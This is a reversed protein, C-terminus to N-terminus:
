LALKVLEMKSHIGLKRYIEKRMSTVTSEALFLRDAIQRAPLGERILLAIDRERPTLAPTTGAPVSHLAAVGTARRHCLAMCEKLRGAYAGYDSNLSELLPLLAAGHEAFPLYMRDPLAITLAARLCAAAEKRRGEEQKAQALFILHYMQLLSYHMTRTTRLATETLAYLEARRKELLLMQCHLMVAHPQTVSYLTRRISEVHRLWEPLANTRGVAMDLHALCMEGLRTLATQRAAEIQQAIHGRAKTYAEADGRLMGINGLVLQACLCNSSQGASGSVYLTKYCLMEAQADDGHALCAEAHMLIEGGMGHGGALQSYFPLCVDMADLAKQLGGSKNWYVSIVSPVGVAWPLNGVYIGSRPPDSVQRLYEHAKRHHEGMKAVDNFCSFFLLMEFEGRITNLQREPMGETNEPCALYTEMLRIVRGYLKLMGKKYFQIGVALVTLPHRLLTEPPCEHFMNAFFEIINDEQTNFFYQDTFPMSLIADYDAVKLFFRAAQYYDGATLCAAAARRYMADAVSRPQMVFRQLLYDRLISHISYVGKDAVYRIFFDMSLLCAISEPVAAGDDMSAAQEATFGDLLSLALLLDKEEGSLRNWIVREVLANIDRSNQIPTSAGYGQLHLRIAAIWGETAAQIREVADHDIRVGTLRCLKVICANDFFFDRLTILHPQKAYYVSLPESKLPQTVIVLHFNEGHHTCLAAILKKQVTTEFLQYNDIVLFIPTKCHFDQLRGAIDPLTDLTPVGLELLDQGLSEDASGFLKCIGAWAKAPSEGLCTYWVIRADEQFHTELYERVATTKGFGSPAEVVTLTHDAIKALQAQLGDPFCYTTQAPKKKAM